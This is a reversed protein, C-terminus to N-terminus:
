SISGFYKNMLMAKLAKAQAKKQITIRELSTFTDLLSSLSAADIDSALKPIQFTMLADKSLHVVTTGSCHQLAWPKFSNNLYELLLRQSYAKSSSVVRELDMSFTLSSYGYFDQVMVANGVIDCNKTLDTHAVLIDGISLRRLQFAKDKTPILGKIGEQQFNGGRGFSKITVMGTRSPRLEFGTYAYGGDIKAISSLLAIETNHENIFRCFQFHVEQDLLHLEEDYKEILDDVSGIADVIKGIKGFEDCLDRVFTGIGLKYYEHHKM